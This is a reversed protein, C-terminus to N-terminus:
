KIFPIYTPTKSRYKRYEDGFFKILNLEEDQIRENFFKWLIIAFAIPSLINCLFIQTGCAWILFGLYGPHRIYKYIGFDVLRHNFRKREFEHTFNHQATIMSVRRVLEGIILLLGLIQMFSNQKFSSIFFSSLIYETLGGLVSYTYDWTILTSEWSLHSPNYIYTLLVESLHFFLYITILILFTAFIGFM